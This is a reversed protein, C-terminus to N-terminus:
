TTQFKKMSLNIGSYLLMIFIFLYIFLLVTPRYLFAIPPFQIGM